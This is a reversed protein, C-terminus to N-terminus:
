PTFPKTKVDTMDIWSTGQSSFFKSLQFQAVDTKSLQRSFSARSSTAAGPGTNQYEGFLVGSTRPDSTSWISWGAPAISKDMYTKIYAVKSYQNWPRGLFVTGATASAGATAAIRCQDFVLGGVASASARKMAAIYTSKINPVITCNLLYASGSGWVFDVSGEIVTNYAFVSTGAGMYFTDQNGAVRCGYLSALANSETAFGLSAYNRTQGFVNRLDINHLRIEAARAFLTASDTDSESSQTDVGRSNQLIVQNSAPSTPDKTYGRFITTGGSRTFVIQEKYTGPYVFVSVTKTSSEKQIAALAATFTSYVTKGAIPSQSIIYEGAAPETSSVKATSARKSLDETLSIGRVGPTISAANSIGAFFALLLLSVSLFEALLTARFALM